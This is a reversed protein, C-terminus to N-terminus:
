YILTATLPELAIMYLLTNGITWQIFHNKHINAIKNFVLSPLNEYILRCSERNSVHLYKRNYFPKFFTNM